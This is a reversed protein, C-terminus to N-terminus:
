TATSVLSQSFLQRAHVMDGQIWACSEARGRPRAQAAGAPATKSVYCADGADRDKAKM